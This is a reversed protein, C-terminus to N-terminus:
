SVDFLFSTRRRKSTSPVKVLARCSILGSTSRHRSSTRSRAVRPITEPESRVLIESCSPPLCFSSSFNRNTKASFPNTAKLSPFSNPQWFMTSWRPSSFIWFNILKLKLYKDPSFSGTLRPWKISKRDPIILRQGTPRLQEWTEVRIMLKRNYFILCFM